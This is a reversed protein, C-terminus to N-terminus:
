EGSSCFIVQRYYTTDERRESIIGHGKDRLVKRLNSIHFKVATIPALDDELCTQLEERSHANGDSLLKMMRYQVPTLM